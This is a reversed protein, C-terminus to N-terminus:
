DIEIKNRALAEKTAGCDDAVDGISMGSEVGNYAGRYGIADRTRGGGHPCAVRTVFASQGMGILM